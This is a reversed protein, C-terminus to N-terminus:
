RTPHGWNNSRDLISDVVRLSSSDLPCRLVCPLALAMFSAAGRMRLGSGHKLWRSCSFLEASRGDAPFESPS